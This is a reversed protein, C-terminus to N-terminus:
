IQYHTGNFRILNLGAYSDLWSFVLAGSKDAETSIGKNEFLHKHILASFSYLDGDNKTKSSENIDNMLIM